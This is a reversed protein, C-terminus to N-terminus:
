LSNCLVSAFIFTDLRMQEESTKKEVKRIIEQVRGDPKNRMGYVM